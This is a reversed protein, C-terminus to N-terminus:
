TPRRRGRAPTPRPPQLQLARHPRGCVLVPGREEPHELAARFQAVKSDSASEQLRLVDRGYASRIEMETAHPPVGLLDYYSNVARSRAM